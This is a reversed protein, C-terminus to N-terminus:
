LLVYAAAVAAVFDIIDEENLDYRKAYHEYTASAARYEKEFAAVTEEWRAKWYKRIVKQEKETLHYKKIAHECAATYREVAQKAEAAIYRRVEVNIARSIDGDTLENIEKYKDYAKKLDAIHQRIEDATKRTIKEYVGRLVETEEPNLGHAKGVKKAFFKEYDKILKNNAM